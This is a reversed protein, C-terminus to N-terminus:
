ENIEWFLSVLTRESVNRGKGPLDRSLVQDIKPMQPQRGRKTSVSDTGSITAEAQRTPGRNRTTLYSSGGKESWSALLRTRIV